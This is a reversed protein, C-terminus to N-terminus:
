KGTATKATITVKGDKMAKIEETGQNISVIANKNVAYGVVSDALFGDGSEGASKWERCEKYRYQCLSVNFHIQRNRGTSSETKHKM